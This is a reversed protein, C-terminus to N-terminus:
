KKERNAAPMSDLQALLFDGTTTLRAILADMANFQRFYRAEIDAVREELRSRDEAIVNKRQDLSTLKSQISGDTSTFGSLSSLMSGAFGDDLSSADAGAFFSAVANRDNKLADTLTDETLTLLGDAQYNIGLQGLLTTTQDTNSPVTSVVNRIVSQVSRSLSDGQLTGAIGTSANYATLGNITTIATNHADIFANVADFVAANDSLVEVTSSSAEKKLKLDLGSVVDSVTNSASSLSLGNVSFVANAARNTEQLNTTSSNFALASLGSGGDDSVSISMSNAVGSEAATFLLRYASGDKIISVSVGADLANIADRLGTLTNNTNDVVLTKQSGTTASFSSYANGTYSPEGFDFTLTGTGLVDTLNTFTGTTALTQASALTTVQVDYVGTAPTGSVTPAVANWDSNSVTRQSVLDRDNLTQVASELAALVASVQGFASVEGDISSALRNLRQEVPQREANVLGAVISDIDLGSGLGTAKIM